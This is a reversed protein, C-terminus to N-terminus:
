AHGVTTSFFHMDIGLSKSAKAWKLEDDTSFVLDATAPVSIWSNQEIEQELQGASWGAFGVTLYAHEPGAGDLIDQLITTSATLAIDGHRTLTHENLYDASHLVFGRHRDVPGGFYVPLDSHIDTDKNPLGEILKEFDVMELPQNIIVGMAGQAHHAFVYVVSRQFCGAEILPTAVLLQGTLYGQGLSADVIHPMFGSRSNINIGGTTPSQMFQQLSALPGDEVTIDDRNNDDAAYITGSQNEETRTPQISATEEDSSLIARMKNLIKKRMLLTQYHETKTPSYEEILM